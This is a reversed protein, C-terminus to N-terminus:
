TTKTYEITIFCKVGLLISSGAKIYIISMNAGAEIIYGATLAVYPIPYVDTVIGDDYGYGGKVSIISDINSIGHTITTIATNLIFPLVKRYITKGDIWIGNTKVENESYMNQEGNILSLYINNVNNCPFNVYVIDNENAIIGKNIEKKVYYKKDDVNVDYGVIENTSINRYVKTIRGNRTKDYTAKGVSEDAVYHIMEALEKTAKQNMDEDM